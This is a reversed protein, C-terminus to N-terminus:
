FFIYILLKLNNDIISNNKCHHSTFYIDVPGDLSNHLSWPRRGDVKLKVQMNPLAM